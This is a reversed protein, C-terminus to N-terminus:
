ELRRRAPDGPRRRRPPLAARDVVVVNAELAEVHFRVAEAAVQGERVPVFLSEFEEALRSREDNLGNTWGVSHLGFYGARTKLMRPDCGICALRQQPELEAIVRHIERNPAYHTADQLRSDVVAWLGVAHIGLILLSGLAAARWGQAPRAVRQLGLLIAYGFFVAAIANSLHFYHFPRLTGALSVRFAYLAVGWVFWVSVQLVQMRREPVRQVFAVCGALALGLYVFECLVFAGDASKRPLLNALRWPVGGERETFGSWLRFFGEWDILQSYALLVLASSSLFVLSARARIRWPVSPAGRDGWGGLLVIALLFPPLPALFNLKTVVGSMAALASLVVFGLGSRHRGEAAREEYRWIALLSLEFCLVMLPEVSIRSLYYAVPLSSLYGLAAFAAPRDDRLIRRAFLYTVFAAALHLLTTMGKSLLFVTPLSRATFETFSLGASGGALSYYLHQVGSLLLMLTTGPHGEFLQTGGWALQHAADLYPGGPDFELAKPTGFILNPWVGLPALSSFVISFAM